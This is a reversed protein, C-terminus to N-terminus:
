GVEASLNASIIIPYINKEDLYAYKLEQPLPKLEFSPDGNPPPLEGLNEPPIHL